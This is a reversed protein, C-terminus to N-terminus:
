PFSLHFHFPNFWFIVDQTQVQICSTNLVLAKQSWFDAYTLWFTPGQLFYGLGTHSHTLSLLIAQTFTLLAIIIHSYKYVEVFSLTLKNNVPLTHSLLFWTSVWQSSWCCFQTHDPLFCPLTSTMGLISFKNIIFTTHWLSDAHAHTCSM